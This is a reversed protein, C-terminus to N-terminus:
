QSAAQLLQLLVPNGIVPPDSSGYCQLCSSTVGVESKTKGGWDGWVTLDASDDLEQKKEASQLKYLLSNNFSTDFCGTILHM